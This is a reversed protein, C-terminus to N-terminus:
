GVIATFYSRFRCPYPYNTYYSSFPSLFNDYQSHCFLPHSILPLITPKLMVCSMLYLTYSGFIVM